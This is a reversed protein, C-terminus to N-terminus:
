LEGKIIAVYTINDFDVYPEVVIRKKIGLNDFSVKNVKGIKIDAPLNGIGSTSVEDGIEIDEYNNIADIILKQNQYKLIGYCNNVKVSIQSNKNTLFNVVSSNKNVKKIVGVLGLDNIVAANIELNDNKGKLITMEEYYDYIDRYLIKSFTYEYESKIPIKFMYLLKNYEKEYYTEKTVTINSNISILNNSKILLGYLSEKFLFIIFFLLLIGSNKIFQKLSLWWGNDYFSYYSNNGIIIHDILPIGIILGTKQVNKTFEIDEKSPETNGSPHNHVLMLYVSCNKIAELFIERPHVIIKNITGVFITKHTIIQKKTDLFIAILHEQKLNILEYKFLEYIIKPNTVKIKNKPAFNITRRGLEIASLLTIAKVEGVGKIKTLNNINWNNYENLNFEKTINIALDKVSFDTTGTRLVIAILEENSLNEVGFKKFKERPKESNPLDKILYSM